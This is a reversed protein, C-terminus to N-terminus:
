YERNDADYEWTEFLETELPNEPLEAWHSLHYHSVLNPNYIHWTKTHVGYFALQWSANAYNGYPLYWVLYTGNKDPNTSNGIPHHDSM